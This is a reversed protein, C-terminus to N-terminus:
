WRCPRSDRCGASSGSPVLSSSAREPPWSEIASSANSCPRRCRVVPGQPQPMAVVAPVGARGGDGVLQLLPAGGLPEVKLDLLSWLIQGPRLRRSAAPAVVGQSWRARLMPASTTVPWVALSRASVKSSCIARPAVEGAQGGQSRHPGQAGVPGLEPPGQQPEASLLGGRDAPLQGQRDPEIGAVVGGGEGAVANTGINEGRQLFQM